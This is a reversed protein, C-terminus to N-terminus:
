GISSDISITNKCEAISYVEEEEVQRGERELYYAKLNIKSM